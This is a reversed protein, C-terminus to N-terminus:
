SSGRRSLMSVWERIRAQLIGHVSSGPPSCDMPNCLTLCSQLSEAGVCLNKSFSGPGQVITEQSSRRQKQTEERGQNAVTQVQRKSSLPPCPPQIFDMEYLGSLPSVPLIQARSPELPDKEM